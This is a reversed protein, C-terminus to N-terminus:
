SPPPADPRFFGLGRRNAIIRGTRRIRGIRKRIADENTSRGLIEVALEKGSAARGKLRDWVARQDDTLLTLGSQRRGTEAGESRSGLPWDGTLAREIAYASARFVDPDLLDVRLSARMLNALLDPWPQSAGLLGSASGEPIERTHGYGLSFQMRDDDLMLRHERVCVVPDERGCGERLVHLLWRLDWDFHVHGIADGTLTGRAEAVCRMAARALEALRAVTSAGVSADCLFFAHSYARGDLSVYLARPESTTRGSAMALAILHPYAQCFCSVDSSYRADSSIFAVHLPALSNSAREFERQLFALTGRVDTM